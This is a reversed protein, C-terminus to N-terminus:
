KRIKIEKQFVPKGKYGKYGYASESAKVANAIAQEVVTAALTGVINLDGIDDGTSVAYISDGDATTHVPKIARAFGDQAMAAIKNMEGKNFKCNTVVIALTTNGTFLNSPSNLM